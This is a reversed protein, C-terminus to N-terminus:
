YLSWYISYKKGCNQCEVIESGDADADYISDEEGCFPCTHHVEYSTIIEVDDEELDIHPIFEECAEANTNPVRSGFLKCPVTNTAIDLCQGYHCHFCDKCM